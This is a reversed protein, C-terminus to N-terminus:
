GHAAAAEVRNRGNNKAKYLAEDAAAILSRARTRSDGQVDERSAVGISLTVRIPKGTEPLIELKEIRQRTKDAFHRAGELTTEPLVMLFEEGGFRGIFDTERLLDNLETAVRQLVLDGTLHGWRDNIEKFSDLDAIAVALPRQYRQSRSWERDLIELLADRRYLGTLGEYTASDFLRANEFVTAALQAVLTLLELEEAVYRSGERKRGFTLIGVLDEHAILPVILEAHVDALRQAMAPSAAALTPAPTPRGSRELMKLAPDDGGILGTREPDTERRQSTSLQVLQEQPPACIWVAVLDVAFIRALERVLHDGMRPLTGQAPLETTLSVLRSRLAQREPFLRRDIISNLRKRLPNFLLGMTLGATSLVWLPVGESGLQRAALGGLGGVLGYFGLVLLTTLAGYLFSKRVLLELDFLRYLYIAAFVAVPYALLAFNWIADPLPNANPHIQLRISDYLVVGTWPLVGLLVLGAQQRGRPDPHTLTRTGIIGALAIAWLPLLWTFLLSDAIADLPQLSNEGIGVGLTTLAHFGGLGIGVIYFSRVVWPHRRLWKPPSPLVTALNLDLGFQVGTILLFAVNTALLQGGSLGLSVPLALEFAVAFCFAALLTSREDDARQGSALLGVALYLLCALATLLFDSWDLAGGPVLVFQLHQGGRLVDARIPVGRRFGEAVRDFDAAERLPQGDISLLADGAKLGAREAPEGPAVDLIEIQPKETSYTVGIHRDSLETGTRLTVMLLAFIGLSVVVAWRLRHSPKVVTESSDVRM